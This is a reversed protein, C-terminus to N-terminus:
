SGRTPDRWRSSGSASAPRAECSLKVAPPSRASDRCRQTSGTRFHARTLTSPGSGPRASFRGCSVPGVSGSALSASSTRWSCRFGRSRKCRVVNTATGCLWALRQACATQAQLSAAVELPDRCVLVAILPRGLLERWFPLLLSLRPDNFVVPGPDSGFAVEFADLALRRSADLESVQEWGPTLIPPRDWSGGLTNLLGEDFASLTRGGLHGGANEPACDLDEREPVTLGFLRLLGAVASTGSRHM